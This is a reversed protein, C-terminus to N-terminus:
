QFKGQFKGQFKRQSRRQSKGGLDESFTVIILIFLFLLIIGCIINFNRSPEDNDM